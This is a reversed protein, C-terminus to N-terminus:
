TPELRPNPATNFSSKINKDTRLYHIIDIDGPSYKYETLEAALLSRHETGHNIVHLLILGVTDQEQEGGIRRYRIVRDLEQVTIERIYEKMREEEQKWLQQIPELTLYNDFVLYESPSYNEQCRVRWVWESNLIHVLTNRISGHGYIKPELFNGSSLKAVNELIKDRAWYNYALLFQIDKPDM